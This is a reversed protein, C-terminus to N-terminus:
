FLIFSYNILISLSNDHWSVAIKLWKRHQHWCTSSLCSSYCWDSQQSHPPHKQPTSSPFIESGYNDQFNLPLVARSIWLRHHHYHNFKKPYTCDLICVDSKFELSTQHCSYWKNEIPNYNLVLTSIKSRWEAHRDWSGVRANPRSKLWKGNVRKRERRKKGIPM